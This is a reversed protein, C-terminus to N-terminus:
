ASSSKPVSLEPVSDSSRKREIMDEATDHFNTLRDREVKLKKDLFSHRLEFENFIESWTHVYVKYEGSIHVLGSEGHMKLANIQDNIYGKSDLKNGILFFKWTMNSANFRSESKIVNFYDYVQDLEKKGLRVNVPHKLEIVVNEIVGNRKDQRVLFLDMERNKEEHEIVTKEDYGRLLYLYRRLAEEFDPEAATLLQFEEGILWYNKEMMKQLHPVEGAYMSPDFVMRKFDSVSKYRDSILEITKVISSMKTTMLQNAFLERESSTLDIVGDLVRFLDELEGGDIILALFGVLTKKQARNLSNFIRPEVQYLQSVAERLDEARLVEWRNKSNYEPFVGNSEYQEVLTKAYDIIFPKRKQRLFGNIEKILEKFEESQDSHESLLDAQGAKEGVKFDNFFGGRVYVSHYFADGKNNFTTPKSYVSSNSDDICYFRSFYSNLKSAWRVYRVLFENNETTITIEDVDKVLSEYPLPNGNILISFGKERNLELFWSFEKRFYEKIKSEFSFDSLDFINLFSVKTGTARVESLKPQTPEYYDIRSEDVTISYDYIKQDEEYSTEWKAAQSFHYFTLRGLGHKGHVLSNNRDSDRKESSLVPKFKNKLKSFPIGSGNDSICLAFIDGIETCEFDIFITDAGADFGNWVYEALAKHPKVSKLRNKIGRAEVEVRSM